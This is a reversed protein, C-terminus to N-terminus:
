ARRGLLAADRLGSERGDLADLAHMYAVYKAYSERELGRSRPSTYKRFEEYRAYANDAAAKLMKRFLTLPIRKNARAM